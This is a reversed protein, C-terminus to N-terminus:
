ITEDPNNRESQNIDGAKIFKSFIRNYYYEFEDDPYINFHQDMEDLMEDWTLKGDM